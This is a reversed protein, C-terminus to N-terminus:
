IPPTRLNQPRILMQPFKQRRAKAANQGLAQEKSVVLRLLPSDFLPFCALADRGPLHSIIALIKLKLAL